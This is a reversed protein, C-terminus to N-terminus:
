VRAAVLYAFIFLIPAAIIGLLLVWGTNLLFGGLRFDGLAMFALCLYVLATVAGVLLYPAEAKAPFINAIVKGTGAEVLATFTQNRYSYHFIHIPIHALSSQKIKAEPHKQSLWEQATDLPISPPVSQGDLDASYPKLDGAPLSLHTLETISIAAASELLTSEQGSRDVLFYWLPFYQFSQDLIRAKKDLDKVTQNGSMWRNLEGVAQEANITPALYWHFVVQSVDLFVTAGCYPCSLFRQGEDPHLEGGCQTCNITTVPSNSM